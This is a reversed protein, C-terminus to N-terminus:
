YWVTLILHADAHKGEVVGITSSSHKITINENKDLWENIQNVMYDMAGDSLKSHFLRCRTAGGEGGVARKLHSEDWVGTAGLVSASANMKIRTSGAPSEQKVSSGTGIDMDADDDDDDSLLIPEDFDGGLGGTTADHDREFEEVCHPCMLKGAEYRAIGTDLHERYVSAGCEQCIIHEDASM